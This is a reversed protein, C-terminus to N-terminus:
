RRAEETLPKVRKGLISGFLPRSASLAYGTAHSMENHGVGARNCAGEAEVLTAAYMTPGLAELDSAVAIRAHQYPTM